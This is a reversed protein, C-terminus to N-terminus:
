FLESIVEGRDIAPVPRGSHDLFHTTPDIGLVHYITAHLDFPTIPRDKVRDGRADTSGVVRGKIGGGGGVSSASARPTPSPSTRPSARSGRAASPAPSLASAPLRGPPTQATPGAVAPSLM